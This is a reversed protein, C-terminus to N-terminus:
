DKLRETIANIYTLPDIVSFVGATETFSELMVSYLEDASMEPAISWGMGLLGSIYPLAWSFGGKGWYVYSDSSTNSATTRFDSPILIKGAYFATDGAVFPSITYDSANMNDTGPPAGGWTFYKHTFERSSLVVAIDQAAAREMLQPWREMVEPIKYDIGDSVSVVRIKEGGPLTKNVALLTDMASLYNISNKGNDPVAFYYIEAEPLIGCETGAVVSACAIGHFHRKNMIDGEFVETYHMRGKFEDHEPNIPKDIVAVKIGRGTYGRRHLEKIQLGPDMGRELWGAPDYFAPMKDKEPWRTKNDFVQYKLFDYSLGGLDKKRFDFGSFGFFFDYQSNNNFSTDALAQPLEGPDFGPRGSEDPTDTNQNCGAACLTIFVAAIIFNKTNMVSAVPSM